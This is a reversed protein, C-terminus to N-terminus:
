QQDTRRIECENAARFKQQMETNHWELPRNVRLPRTMMLWRCLDGGIWASADETVVVLTDGYGARPRFVDSGCM